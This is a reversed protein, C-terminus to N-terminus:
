SPWLERHREPDPNSGFPRAADGCGAPPPLRLGAAPSSLPCSGPAAAAAAGPRSGVPECPDQRGGSDVAPSAPGGARLYPGSPWPELVRVGPSQQVWHASGLRPWSPFCLATLRDGAQGWAAGARPNPAAFHGHTGQRGPPLGPKGGLMRLGLQAGTAPGAQSLNLLFHSLFGCIFFSGLAPRPKPSGKIVIYWFQNIMGRFWTGVSPM